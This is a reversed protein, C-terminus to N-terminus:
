VVKITLTGVANVGDALGGLDQEPQHEGSEDTARIRLMHNGAAADFEFSWLRWVAHLPFPFRGPDSLQIVDALLPESDKLEQETQLTAPQYAGGDLAIDVNTIGGAGSVAFGEIRVRGAPVSANQLPNTARSIVRMVGDDVFGADQYTGFPEDSATAEVRTIWKVNKYGFSEHVILRVPAGHEATLPEGNMHTVLLPEVLEPNGNGYVRDVTINNGFTDAGYLRLRVASSRDIGAQDLFLRLPVGRWVATGILGQVENSDIVCRMTKLLEIADASKAEIDAYSIEMPTGVLGDIRLRWADREIIPLAWDSISTEAGNKYFFSDIPTLFSVVRGGTIPDVSNFECGALGFLSFGLVGGGARLIFTRRDM